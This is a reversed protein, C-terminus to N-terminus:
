QARANCKELEAPSLPQGGARFSLLTGVKRALVACVVAPRSNSQSAACGAESCKWVTNRLVFKAAAPRAAPEASYHGAAAALAPAAAALTFALFATRFM